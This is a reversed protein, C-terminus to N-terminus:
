LGSCDVYIAVGKCSTYIGYGTFLVLALFAAGAIRYLVKTPLM